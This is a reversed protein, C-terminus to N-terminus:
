RGSTSPARRPEAQRRPQRVLRRAGRPVAPRMSPGTLGPRHRRGMPQRCDRGGAGRSHEHRAARRAPRSRRSSCSAAGARGSRRASRGGCCRTCSRSSSFACKRRRRICTSMSAIPPIEVFLHVEPSREKITAVSYAETDRPRDDPGQRHPPQRLREAARAGSGSRRAGRRIRPRHTRRGGQQGRDPRRAGSCSSSASACGAAPPCELM